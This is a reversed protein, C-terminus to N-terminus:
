QCMDAFDRRQMVIVAGMVVFIGSSVFLNIQLGITM